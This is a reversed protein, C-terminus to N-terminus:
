KSGKTKLFKSKIKKYKKDSISWIGKKSKYNGTSKDKIIPTTLQYDFLEFIRRATDQSALTKARQEIKSILNLNKEFNKDKANEIFEKVSFYSLLNSSLDIISNKRVNEEAIALASLADKIPVVSKVKKPFCDSPHVEYRKEKLFKRPDTEKKRNDM